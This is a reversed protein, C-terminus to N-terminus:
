AWYKSDDKQGSYQVNLLDRPFKDKSMRTSYIEDWDGPETMMREARKKEILEAKLASMDCKLEEKCAKPHTLVMEYECVQPETLSKVAYTCGCEVKITGTRPVKTTECVDGTFTMAADENLTPNIDGLKIRASHVGDSHFMVVPSDGNNHKFFNIKYNWWGGDNAQVSSSKLYDYFDKSSCVEPTTVTVVYRCPTIEEVKKVGLYGCELNVQGEGYDNTATCKDGYNLMVTTTKLGEPTTPNFYGLVTEKGDKTMTVKDFFSATYKTGDDETMTTEKDKMYYLAAFANQVKMKGKDVDQRITWFPVPMDEGNITKEM